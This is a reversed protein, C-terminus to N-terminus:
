LYVLEITASGDLPVDETLTLESGKNLFAQVSFTGSLHKFAIPASTTTTSWSHLVSKLNQLTGQGTGTNWTAGSVKVDISSAQAGFSCIVATTAFALVALKPNCRM